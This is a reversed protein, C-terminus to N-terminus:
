KLSIAARRLLQAPRQRPAAETARLAVLVAFGWASAVVVGGLVDSPYHWALAVVAWGVIAVLGAGFAAALPRWESPVVFLFAIAISAAATAHGSPFTNPDLQDSGLAAQVRPHALALKLLQTTLNAGVVLIVAAAAHRPQRRALAIGCAVALMLALPTPDGLKALGAALSDTHTGPEVVRSLLAADRQQVAEVGHVLAALVIFAAVCALCAALPAKLNRAM